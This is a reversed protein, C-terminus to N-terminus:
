RQQVPRDQTIESPVIEYAVTKEDRPPRSDYKIAPPPMLTVLGRKDLSNNRSAEFSIEHAFKASKNRIRRKEGSASRQNEDQKTTVQLDHKTEDHQTISPQITTRHSQSPKLRSPSGLDESDLHSRREESRDRNNLYAKVKNSLRAKVETLQLMELNGEPPVKTFPKDIKRNLVMDLLWIAYM